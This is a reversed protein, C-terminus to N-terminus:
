ESVVAFEVEVPGSGVAEALGEPNEITGLVTYDYSTTFSQYFLVLCSGGFLMLDGAAISNPCVSRTPLNEKLYCYKENGNLEDMTLTMPMSHCLAQAATCHNLRAQFERGSITIKIESM